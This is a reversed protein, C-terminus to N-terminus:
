MASAVNDEINEWWIVRYKEGRYSRPSRVSRFKIRTTIEVILRKGFRPSHTRELTYNERQLSKLYFSREVKDFIFTNRDVKWNSVQGNSQTIKEFTLAFHRLPIHWFRKESCSKVSFSRAYNGCSAYNITVITDNGSITM